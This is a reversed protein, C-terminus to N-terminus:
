TKAARVYDNPYVNAHSCKLSLDGRRCCNFQAEGLSRGEYQVDHHFGEPLPIGFRFASRLFLRREEPDADPELERPLGHSEKDPPFLLGRADQLVTRVSGKPRVHNIGQFPEAWAIRQRVLDAFVTAIPREKTLLFNKPPLLLPDRSSISSLRRKLDNIEGAAINVRDAVYEKSAIPDHRRQRQANYESLYSLRVPFACFDFSSLLIEEDPSPVYALLIFQPVSPRINARRSREAYDTIVGLLTDVAAVSYLQQDDNRAPQSIVRHEPKLVAELHSQVPSAVAQPLGALVILPTIQAERFRLRSRKARGTM